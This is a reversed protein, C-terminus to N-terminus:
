ICKLSLIEEHNEEWEQRSIKLTKHYTEFSSMLSGGIWAAHKRQLTYGPERPFLFLQFYMFHETNEQSIVSNNNNGTGHTQCLEFIVQWHKVVHM